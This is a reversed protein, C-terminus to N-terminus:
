PKINLGLKNLEIIFLSGAISPMAYSLNVLMKNRLKYYNCYEAFEKIDSHTFGERYMHMFMDQLEEPLNELSDPDKEPLSRLKTEEDKKKGFIRKILDVFGENFQEFREIRNEKLGDHKTSAFDKLKKLGRKKGKKMFSKALDKVADSADPMDGKAHAYAMGMLRQQKKSVSPM